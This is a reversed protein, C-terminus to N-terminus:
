LIVKCLCFHRLMAKLDTECNKRHKKGMLVGGQRSLFPVFDSEKREPFAFTERMVNSVGDYNRKIFDRPELFIVNM